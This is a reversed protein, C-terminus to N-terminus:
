RHIPRPKVTASTKASPNDVASALTDVSVPSVSLPLLECPFERAHMSGVKLTM